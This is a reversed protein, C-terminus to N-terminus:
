IVYKSIFFLNGCLSIRSFGRGINCVVISGHLDTCLSFNSSHVKQFIRYHDGEVINHLYLLERFQAIKKLHPGFPPLKYESELFFIMNLHSVLFGVTM